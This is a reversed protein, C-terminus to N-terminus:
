SNPGKLYRSLTYTLHGVLARFRSPGRYLRSERERRSSCAFCGCLRDRYERFRCLAVYAAGALVFAALGAAAVILM